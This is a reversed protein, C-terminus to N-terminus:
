FPKGARSRVSVLLACRAAAARRLAPAGVNMIISPAMSALRRARVGSNRPATRPIRKKRPPQSDGRGSSLLWRRAQSGACPSPARGSGHFRHRACWAQSSSHRQTGDRQAAARKTSLGRYRSQWLRAFGSRTHACPVAHSPRTARQRPLTANKRSYSRLTSRSFPSYRTAEAAVCNQAVHAVACRPHPRKTTHKSAHGFGLQLESLSSRLLTLERCVHHAHGHPHRTRMRTYPYLHGTAHRTM